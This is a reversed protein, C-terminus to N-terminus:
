RRKTWHSCWVAMEGMGWDLSCLPQPVPSCLQKLQVLCIYLQADAYQFWWVGSRRVLVGLLGLYMDFLHFSLVAGWVWSGKSFLPLQGWNCLETRVPGSNLLKQFMSYGGEKQCLKGVTSPLTQIKKKKKINFLVWCIYDPNGWVQFSSSCIGRYLWNYVECHLILPSSCFIDSITLICVHDLWFSEYRSCMLSCDGRMWEATSTM